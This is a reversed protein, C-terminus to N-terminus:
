NDPMLNRRAECVISHIFMHRAYIDAARSAYHDVVAAGAELAHEVGPPTDEKGFFCYQLVIKGARRVAPYVFRRFTNDFRRGVVYHSASTESALKTFAVRLGQDDNDELFLRIGKILLPSLSQKVRKYENFQGLGSLIRPDLDIIRENDPEYSELLALCKDSSGYIDHQGVRASHEPNARNSHAIANFMHWAFVGNVLDVQELTADTANRLQQQLYANVADRRSNNNSLQTLAERFINIGDTSFNWTHGFGGDPEQLKSLFWSLEGVASARSGEYFANIKFVRKDIGEQCKTWHEFLPEAVERELGESVLFDRVDHLKSFTLGKKQALASALETRTLGEPAAAFFAPRGNGHEHIWSQVTNFVANTPANAIGPHCFVQFEIGRLNDPTLLTFLRGDLIDSLSLVVQSDSPNPDDHALLDDLRLRALVAERMKATDGGTKEELAKYAGPQRFIDYISGSFRM